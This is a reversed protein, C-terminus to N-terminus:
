LDQCLLFLVLEPRVKLELEQKMQSLLLLALHVFPIGEQLAFLIEIQMQLVPLCEDSVPLEQEAVVRMALLEPM